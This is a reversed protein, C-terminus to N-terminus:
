PEWWGTIQPTVSMARTARYRAVRAVDKWSL